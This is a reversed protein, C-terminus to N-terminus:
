DFLKCSLFAVVGRVTANESNLFFSMGGCLYKLDPWSWKKGCGIALNMFAVMEFAFLQKFM